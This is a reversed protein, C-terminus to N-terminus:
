MVPHGEIHMTTIKSTFKETDKQTAQGEPSAFATRISEKDDFWLEVVGNYEPAKNPPRKVVNVVYKRLRPMKKASPAHTTLWYEAFTEDTMNEKKNLLIMLKFTEIM